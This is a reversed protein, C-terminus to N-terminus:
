EEGIVERLADDLENTFISELIGKAESYKDNDLTNNMEDRHIAYLSKIHMWRQYQDLRMSRKEQSRQAKPHHPNLRERMGYATDMSQIYDMTAKVHQWKGETNLKAFDEETM